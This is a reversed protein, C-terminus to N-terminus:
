PLRIFTKGSGFVNGDFVFVLESANDPVQFGVVGRVTEGPALEGEPATGGAASAALLDPSYQRGISDKLKMQLLSSINAATNANNTISLDVVVFRKGEAPTAFQSGEPSSSGNITLQLDGIQLPASSEVSGPAAEGTLAAPADVQQPTDGLEIFIKGTQFVGADFVFTLNGADDPVQFGIGGQLKEGAVLEGEPAAGNIASTALLDTTYRRDQADKLSMQAITSLNNSGSGQNVFLLEVAVFRKGDEPKAFQTPAPESWGLVALAIDGLQVVDGLKYTQPGTPTSAAPASTPSDASNSNTNGTAPVATAVLTSENSRGGSVLAGIVGIVVLAGIAILCGRFLKGFM